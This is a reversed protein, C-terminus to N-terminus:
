HFGVVFIQIGVMKKFCIKGRLMLKYSFMIFM